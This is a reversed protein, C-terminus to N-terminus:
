AFRGRAEEAKKKEQYKDYAAKAGLGLGVGATGIAVGTLVKKNRRLFGAKGSPNNSPTVTSKQKAAALRKQKRTARKEQAERSNIQAEIRERNRDAAERLQLNKLENNAKHKSAAKGLVEEPTKNIVGNGTKKPGNEVLYQMNELTEHNIAKERASHASLIAKQDKRSAKVKKPDYKSYLRQLIISM